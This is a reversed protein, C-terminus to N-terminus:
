VHGHQIAHYVVLVHRNATPRGLGARFIVPCSCTMTCRQLPLVHAYLAECPLQGLREEQLIKKLCMERLCDRNTGIFNFLEIADVHCVAHARDNRIVHELGDGVRLIGAGFQLIMSSSTQLVGLIKTSCTVAEFTKKVITVVVIVKTASSCTSGTVTASITVTANETLANAAISMTAGVSVTPIILRRCVLVGLAPRRM